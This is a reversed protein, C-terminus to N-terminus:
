VLKPDVKVKSGEPASWTGNEGDAKTITVEHDNEEPDKYKVTITKADTDAKNPPVTILGTTKDYSVTPQKPALNTLLEEKKVTTGSNKYESQMVLSGNEDRKPVFKTYDVWDGEVEAPNIIKVNGDKDFDIYAPIDNVTWDPLKSKGSTTTNAERIAKDIAKKEEDTLKKPDRVPVNPVKIEPKQLKCSAFKRYEKVVVGFDRGLQLFEDNIHIKIEDTDADVTTWDTNFKTNKCSGEDCFNNKESEAIQAM